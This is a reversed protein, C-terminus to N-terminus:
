SARSRQASARSGCAARTSTPTRASWGSGCTSRRVSRQRRSTSLGIDDGAFDASMTALMKESQGGMEHTATTVQEVHAVFPDKHLAAVTATAYRIGAATDISPTAKAPAVSKTTAGSPAAAGTCGVLLASALLVSGFRALSRRHAPMRGEMEQGPHVEHLVVM